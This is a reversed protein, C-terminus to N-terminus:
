EADGDNLKRRRVRWADILFGSFTTGGAGILFGSLSSRGAEEVVLGGLVPTLAPIVLPGLYVACIAGVIVSAMGDVWGDRLTLWRVVGGLAGALALRAIEGSGDPFVMAPDPAVTAAAAGVTLTVLTFTPTAIYSM